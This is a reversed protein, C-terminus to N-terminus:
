KQLVSDLHKNFKETKRIFKECYAWIVIDFLGLPIDLRQLISKLQKLNIDFYQLLKTIWRDCKIAEGGMNRVIFRSNAEGIYSLNMLEIRKIDSIDLDKSKVKGNFFTKQFTKEDEFKNLIKAITRIAYWKDWARKKSRDHLRSIFNDWERKSMSAIDEYEQIFGEREARELFSRAADYSIGSVWIAWVSSDFFSMRTIDTPRDNYWRIFGNDEGGIMQFCYEFLTQIAKISKTM